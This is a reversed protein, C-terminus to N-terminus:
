CKNGDDLYNADFTQNIFQLTLCTNDLLCFNKVRRKQETQNTKPTQKKYNSIGSKM